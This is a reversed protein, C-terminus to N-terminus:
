NRFKRWGEHNVKQKQVCWVTQFEIWGYSDLDFVTRETFGKQIKGDNLVEKVQMGM